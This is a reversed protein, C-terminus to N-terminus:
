RQARPTFQVILAAMETLACDPDGECAASQVPRQEVRAIQRTGAIAPDCADFDAQWVEGSAAEVYCSVDGQEVSVVDLALMSFLREPEPEGAPAAGACAALAPLGPLAALKLLTVFRM